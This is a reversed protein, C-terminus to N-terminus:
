QAKDQVYGTANRAPPHSASTVIRAPAGVVTSGAPVDMAVVSHAGVVANRGVTVKGVISAGAYVTAGRCVTPYGPEEMNRAGFTTNQYITVGDELVM